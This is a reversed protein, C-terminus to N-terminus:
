SDGEVDADGASAFLFRQLRSLAPGSMLHPQRKGLSQLPFAPAHWADLKHRHFAERAAFPAACHRTGRRRFPGINYAIEIRLLM